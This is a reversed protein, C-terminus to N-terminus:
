RTGLEPEPLKPVSCIILGSPKGLTNWNEARNVNQCKSERAARGNDRFGLNEAALVGATRDPTLKRAPSKRSNRPLSSHRHCVTRPRWSAKLIAREMPRLIRPLSVPILGFSVRRM